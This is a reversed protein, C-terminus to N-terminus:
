FRVGFTMMINIDQINGDQPPILNTWNYSYEARIGAFFIWGGFNREWDLHTGLYVGHYVGQRRRYGEPDTQPEFGVSATGWRGGVDTGFRWNSEPAQGVNGPGNLFWDRGLGFNLSTRNMSRIGLPLTFNNSPNSGKLSNASVNIPNALRNGRNFTYGLGLDLTWAADSTPNFFLTRAGTQVVWGTRQLAGNFGGAEGLISPGTRLYNEYTVSGNGGVGDSGAPRDGCWPSYVAGPIPQSALGTSPAPQLESPQLMTGQGAAPLLGTTATPASITPKTNFLSTQASVTASGCAVGLGALLIRFAKM